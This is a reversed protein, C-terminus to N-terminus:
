NIDNLPAFYEYCGGMDIENIVEADTNVYMKKSVLNSHLNRIHQRQNAPDDCDCSCLHKCPGMCLINSCQKLYNDDNCTESSKSLILFLHWQFCFNLRKKKKKIENQLIHSFAPKEQGASKRILVSDVIRDKQPFIRTLSFKYKPM